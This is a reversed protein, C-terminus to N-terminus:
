SSVDLRNEQLSPSADILTPINTAPRIQRLPEGHKYAVLKLHCQRLVIWWAEHPMETLVDTKPICDREDIFKRIKQLIENLVFFPHTHEHSV